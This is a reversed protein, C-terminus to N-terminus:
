YDARRARTTVTVGTFMPLTTEGAGFGVSRNEINFKVECAERGALHEKIKERILQELEEPPITVTIRDLM